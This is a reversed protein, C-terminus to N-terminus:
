LKIVLSIGGTYSNVRATNILTPCVHLSLNDSVDYTFFHADVSADVINLLYFAAIGIVSLDRYRHYYRQLTNLNEDSYINVYDDSTTPDGDIRNAYATRYQVYKKQNITFSYALVGFGAYVVPIKWYKHNYAQGFGPLMASMAAAKKPSHKITRKLLTTDNQVQAFSNNALLFLLLLASIMLNLKTYAYRFQYKIM